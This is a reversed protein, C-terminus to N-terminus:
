RTAPPVVFHWGSVNMTPPESDPTGLKPQGEPIQLRGAAIASAAVRTSRIGWTSPSGQCCAPGASSSTSKRPAARMSRRMLLAGRARMAALTASARSAQWARRRQTATHNQVRATQHSKIGSNHERDPTPLLGMCHLVKFLGKSRHADCTCEYNCQSQTSATMLHRGLLHQSTSGSQMWAFPMMPAACRCANVVSSAARKCGMNHHTRGGTKCRCTSCRRSIMSRDTWGWSQVLQQTEPDSQNQAALLDAPPVNQLHRQHAKTKRGQKCLTNITSSVIMWCQQPKSKTSAAKFCSAPGSWRLSQQLYINPSTGGKHAVAERYPWLNLATGRFGSKITRCLM